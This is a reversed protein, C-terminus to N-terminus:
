AKVFRRQLGLVLLGAGLFAITTGGDPVSEGRCAILTVGSIGGGGEPVEAPFEFTDEGNLKWAGVVGGPPNGLDPNGRGYHIVAYDYGALGGESWDWISQYTVTIPDDCLDEVGFYTVLRYINNAENAGNGGGEGTGKLAIYYNNYVTTGTPTLQEVVASATFATVAFASITLLLKKTM